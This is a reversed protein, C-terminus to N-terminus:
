CANLECTSDSKSCLWSPKHPCYHISPSPVQYFYYIVILAIFAFNSWIVLQLYLMNILSDLNTVIFEQKWM